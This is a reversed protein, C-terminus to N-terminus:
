KATCSWWKLGHKRTYETAKDRNTVVLNIGACVGDLSYAHVGVAEGVDHGLRHLLAHYGHADRYLHPDEAQLGLVPRRPAAYSGNWAPAEALGILSLNGAAYSCGPETCWSRFLV